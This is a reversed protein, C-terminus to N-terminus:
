FSPLGREAWQAPRIPPGVRFSFAQVKRIEDDAECRFALDYWVGRSRYAAQAPELFTGGSPRFSPLMEPPRGPDFSRLQADLETMCLLNLRQAPGMGRMATQSRTDGLIQNSFLERARALPPVGAPDSTRGGARSAERTATPQNQRAPRESPAPKQTPRARSLRVELDGQGPLPDPELTSEPDAGSSLAEDSAAQEDPSLAAVEVPETPTEPEPDAVAEPSVPQSVTPEAEEAKEAEAEAVESATEDSDESAAAEATQAANLNSADPPTDAAGTSDEPATGKALEPGAQDEDGFAFVPQLVPAQEAPHVPPPEVAPQTEPEPPPPTQEAQEQRAPEPEPVEEAKEEPAPPEAKQPEATPDQAPPPVLAVEISPLTPPQEFTETKQEVLVLGVVAHLVLSVVLAISFLSSPLRVGHAHVPM